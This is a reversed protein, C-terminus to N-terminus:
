GSKDGSSRFCLGQFVSPKERQNMNSSRRPIAIQVLSHLLLYLRYLCCASYKRVLYLPSVFNNNDSTAQDRAEQINRRRSELISSSGDESVRAVIVSLFPESSRFTIFFIVIEM